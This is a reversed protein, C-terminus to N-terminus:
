APSIPGNALSAMIEAEIAQRAIDAFELDSLPRGVAREKDRVSRVIQFPCQRTLNFKTNNILEVQKQRCEAIDHVDGRQEKLRLGLIAAERQVKKRRADTLRDRKPDVGTLNAPSVQTIPDKLNGRAWQRINEIDEDVWPGKLKFPWDEKKMWKRLAQPSKGLVDALGRVSNIKM